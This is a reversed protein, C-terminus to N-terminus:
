IDINNEEWLERPVTGNTQKAKLDSMCLLAVFFAILGGILSFTFTLGCVQTMGPDAGVLNFVLLVIGSVVAVGIALMVVGTLVASMVYMIKYEIIDSKKYMM